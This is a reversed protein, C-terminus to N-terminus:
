DSAVSVRLHLFPLFYGIFAGFGVKDTAKPLLGRLFRSQIARALWPLNGLMIIVPIASATTKIYDFVDDDADIYGFPHGFALDSIVDLTFFQARLAFDFPRYEKNTSMYKSSILSVLKAVHMDITGEM